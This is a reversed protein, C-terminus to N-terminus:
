AIKGVLAGAKEHPLGSYGVYIMQIQKRIVRESNACNFTYDAKNVPRIHQTMKGECGEVSLTINLDEKLYNHATFSIKDATIVLDTCEVGPMLGCDNSIIAKNTILMYVILTIALILTIITLKKYPPTYPKQPKKFIEEEQLKKLRAIEREKDRIRKRGLLDMHAYQPTRNLYIKNIFLM